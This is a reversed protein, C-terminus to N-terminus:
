LNQFLKMFPLGVAAPGTNQKLNSCNIGADQVSITGMQFIVMMNEQLPGNQVRKGFFITNPLHCSKNGNKM